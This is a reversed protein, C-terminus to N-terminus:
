SEFTIFNESPFSSEIIQRLDPMENWVLDLWHKIQIGRAYREPEFWSSQIGILKANSPNWMERETFGQDWIGGGSFGEPHELDLEENNDHRFGQEPYEYFIDIEQDADHSTNPVNPFEQPTYPVSSFGMILTKQPNIETGDGKAFQTPAGCLTITKNARGCGAIRVQELKCCSKKPLYDHLSESDVELLGLDLIPHRKISTFGIMGDAVNEPESPLIWLRKEPNQPINHKCTAIFMRNEIQVLTGSSLEKPRAKIDIMAVTYPSVAKFISESSVSAIKRKQSDDM